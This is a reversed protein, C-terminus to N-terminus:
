IESFFFHGAISPDFHFGWGLVLTTIVHQSAPGTACEPVIVSYTVNTSYEVLLLIDFIRFM